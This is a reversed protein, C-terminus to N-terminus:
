CLKLVPFSIFLDAQKGNCGALAAKICLLRRHKILGLVVINHGFRTQFIVSIGHGAGTSAIELRDLVTDHRSGFIKTVSNLVDAFLLMRYLQIGLQVSIGQRGNILTCIKSQARKAKSVAYDVQLGFDLLPDLIVGLYKYRTVKEIETDQIKISITVLIITVSQFRFTSKDGFLM